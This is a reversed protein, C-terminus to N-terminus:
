IPKRRCRRCLGDHPLDGCQQVECLWCWWPPNFLEHFRREIQKKGERYHLVATLVSILGLLLLMCALAAAVSPLLTILEM